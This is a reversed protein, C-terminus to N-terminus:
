DEDPRFVNAATCTNCVPAASALDGLPIPLKRDPYLCEVDYVGPQRANVLVVQHTESDEQPNVHTCIGFSSVTVSWQSTTAM